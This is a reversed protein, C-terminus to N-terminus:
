AANEASVPEATGFDPIPQNDGLMFLRVKNSSGPVLRVTAGAPVGSRRWEEHEPSLQATELVMLRGQGLTYEQGAITVSFPVRETYALRFQPSSYVALAEETADQRMDISTADWTGDIYGGSVLRTGLAIARLDDDSLLPGVKPSKRAAWEVLTLDDLLESFGPGAIPEDADLPQGGLRLGSPLRMELINPRACAALLRVAARMARADYPRDISANLRITMRQEERDAELHLHVCETADTGDIVRGRLGSTANGSFELEGIDSGSPDVVALIITEIRDEDARSIEIRGTLPIDPM